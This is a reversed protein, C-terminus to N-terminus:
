QSFFFTVIASAEKGSEATLEDAYNLWTRFQLNEFLKDGAQDLKLRIFVEDIPKGSNLWTKLKGSSTVPKVLAKAKEIARLGGSREEYEDDRTDQIRLLRGAP